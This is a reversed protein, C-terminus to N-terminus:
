LPLAREAGDIPGAGLWSGGGGLPTGLGARPDSASTREARSAVAQAREREQQVRDKARRAWSERVAAKRKDRSAVLPRANGNM